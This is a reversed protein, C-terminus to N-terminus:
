PREVVAGVSDDRLRLEPLRERTDRSRAGGDYKPRAPLARPTANGRIDHPPPPDGSTPRVRSLSTMTVAGGSGRAVWLIGSAAGNPTHRRDSRGASAFPPRRASHRLLERKESTRSCRHHYQVTGAAPAPTLPCWRTPPANAIPRALVESPAQAVPVDRATDERTLERFTAPEIGPNATM